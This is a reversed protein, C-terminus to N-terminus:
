LVINHWRQLVMLTGCFSSYSLPLGETQLSRPWSCYLVFDKAGLYHQICGCSQAWRDQHTVDQTRKESLESAHKRRGTVQVM